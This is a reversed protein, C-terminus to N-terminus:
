NELPREISDIVVVDIPATTPTLRLGVRQLAGFINPATSEPDESRVPAGNVLTTTFSRYELHLEFRGPLGTRDVVLRGAQVPLVRGALEAMTIGHWDAIVTGATVRSPGHGCYRVEPDRKSLNELDLPKCSGEAAPQFTRPGEATLAYVPTDRPETHAKLRLRDRLLELLMQGVMQQVPPRGEAKAALDYRENDIWAPGGLVRASGIHMADGQLAGYALVLLERVSVCTFDVRGASPRRQGNHCDPNRKITAVDFSAASASVALLLVALVRRM